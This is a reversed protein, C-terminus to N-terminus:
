KAPGKVPRSMERVWKMYPESGTQIPLAIIEPVSYSHHAKVTAELSDFVESVSKLVLLVEQEETVQGEWCFISRVGPLINACAVLGEEVLVRGIKQAEAESATTILVVVEGM